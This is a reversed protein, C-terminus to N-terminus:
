EGGIVALVSEVRRRAKYLEKYTDKREKLPTNAYEVMQGAITNSALVRMEERQRSLLKVITKKLWIVELSDGSSPRHQSPILKNFEKIVWGEAKESQKM